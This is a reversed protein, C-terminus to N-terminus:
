APRYDREGTEPNFWVETLAGSVPDKFREGTRQWGVRERQIRPRYASREFLIGGVVLVGYFGFYLAVGIWSPRTLLAVAALILLGGVILLARRLM